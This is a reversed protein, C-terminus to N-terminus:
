ECTRRCPSFRIPLFSHIASSAASVASTRVADACLEPAVAFRVAVAAPAVSVTSLSRLSQGFAPYVLM